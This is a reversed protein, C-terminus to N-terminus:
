TATVIEWALVAGEDPEVRFIRLRSGTRTMPPLTSKPAAAGSCILRHEEACQLWILRPRPTWRNHFTGM